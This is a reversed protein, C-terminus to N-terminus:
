NTDGIVGCVGCVGLTYARRRIERGIGSEFVAFVSLAFRRGEDLRDEHILLERRDDSLPSMLATRDRLGDLLLLFFALRESPLQWRDDKAVVSGSSEGHGM